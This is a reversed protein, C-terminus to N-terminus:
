LNINHLRCMCDYFARSNVTSACEHMNIYFHTVLYFFYLGMKLSEEKYACGDQSVNLIMQVTKIISVSAPREDNITTNYTDVLFLCM